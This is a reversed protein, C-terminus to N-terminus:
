LGSAGPRFNGPMPLTGVGGQQPANQLLKADFTHIGVIRNKRISWTIGGNLQFSAPCDTNAINGGSGAGVDPNWLQIIKKAEEEYMMVAFYHGFELLFKIGVVPRM